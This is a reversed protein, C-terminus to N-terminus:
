SQGVSCRELRTGAHLRHTTAPLAAPSGGGARTRAASFRPRDPDARKRALDASDSARRRASNASKGQGSLMAPCDRRPAFPGLPPAGTAARGRSQTRDRM